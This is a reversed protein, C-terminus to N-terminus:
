GFPVIDFPTLHNVAASASMAVCDVIEPRLTPLHRGGTLRRAHDWLVSRKGDSPEAGVVVFDTLEDGLLDRAEESLEPGAWGTLPVVDSTTDDFM